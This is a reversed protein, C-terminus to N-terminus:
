ADTAPSAPSARRDEAGSFMQRMIAHIQGYSMSGHELVIQPLTKIGAPGVPCCLQVRLAVALEGATVYGSELAIKAFLSDLWSMVSRFTDRAHRM